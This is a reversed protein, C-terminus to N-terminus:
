FIDYDRSSGEINGETFSRLGKHFNSFCGVLQRRHSYSSGRMDRWMWHYPKKSVLPLIVNDLPPPFFCLSKSYTSHEYNSAWLFKLVDKFCVLVKWLINEFTLVKYVNKYLRSDNCLEGLCLCKEFTSEFCIVFM